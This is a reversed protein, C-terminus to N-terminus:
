SNLALNILHFNSYNQHYFHNLDLKEEVKIIAIQM